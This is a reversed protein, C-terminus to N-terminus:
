AVRIESLFGDVEHKIQAAQEALKGASELVQMASTGTDDAAKSVGMINDSVQQTGASARQVNQAIETTAIRQQDVAATVESAIRRMEEITTSIARVATLSEDTVTQVHTVSAAIEATAHTTQTALQKVEAAVVAFGRGADGARAAEITANLALLNTQAAISNILGVVQGITSVAHALESFKEATEHGMQSARESVDSARGIGEAIEGIAGALQHGAHALVDISSNMAGSAETVIEAQRATEEAGTSLSSAAGHLSSSTDALSAVRTSAAVEFRRIAAEFHQQRELRGRHEEAEMQQQCENKLISGRFSEIARAVAGVEGPKDLSLIEFDTEHRALRDLNGSIDAFPRAIVREIWLLVGAIGLLIVCVISIEGISSIRTIQDRQEALEAIRGRYSKALGDLTANFATRASRNADNDGLTRAAASGGRKAEAFLETRLKVFAENQRKLAAFETAESPEILKEWQEVTETLTKLHNILGKGFQEIRQPTEAIYLGRSEMVIAYVLGNSREVLGLKAITSAHLANLADTKQNWHWLFVSLMLCLAGIGAIALQLRLFLKGRLGFM